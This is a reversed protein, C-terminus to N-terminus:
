SLRLFAPHRAADADITPTPAAGASQNLEAILYDAFGAPGQRFLTLARVTEDSQGLVLSDSALLGEIVEALRARDYRPTRRLM